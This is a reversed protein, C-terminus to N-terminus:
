KIKTARGIYLDMSLESPDRDGSAFPYSINKHNDGKMSSDLKQLRM